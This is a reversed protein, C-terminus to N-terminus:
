NLLMCLGRNGAPGGTVKYKMQPAAKEEMAIDFAEESAGDEDQSGRPAATCLFSLPNPCSALLSCCLCM